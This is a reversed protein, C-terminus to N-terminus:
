SFGSFLRRRTGVWKVVLRKVKSVNGGGGGNNCGLLYMVGTEKISGSQKPFSITRLFSDKSSQTEQVHSELSVFPLPCPATNDQTNKKNNIMDSVDCARSV